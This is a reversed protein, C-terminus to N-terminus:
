KKIMKFTDSGIKLYYIGSSYKQLDVSQPVETGKLLLQGNINYISYDYNKLNSDATKPIINIYDSTPNPFLSFSSDKSFQNTALSGTNILVRSTFPLLTLNSVPNNNLDVVNTYQSSINSNTNNVIMFSNDAPFNLNYFSGKSNIDFNNAVNLQRWQSLTFTQSSSWVYNVVNTGYPNCLFNNNSSSLVNYNNDTSAIQIPISNQLNAYFINDLLTNNYISPGAQWDAFAVGERCKYTTNGSINNGYSGANILIGSGVAIDEVINDKIIINHAYNDIYIANVIGGPVTGNHDGVVRKIINNRLINNYSDSGFTYLAGGDDMNLLTNEIFNKEIIIGNGGFRIGNYGCNSIKNNAIVGGANGNILWIGSSYYDGVFNPRHNGFEVGVNTITNFKINSNAMNALLMGQVSVNEIINDSINANAGSVFFSNCNNNFRCNLIQNNNSAGKLLIAADAYHEFQLNRIINDSRNDNGAIGLLETAAEINLTNPNIVSMLYLTQTPADYFWEGATDLLELKNDFYFNANTGAANIANAWSVLNGNQATIVQRNLRWDYERLCLNAGVFNRGSTGINSNTISTSTSGSINWTGVNPTRALVQKVSNIYLFYTRQSVTAKWINGNHVAWNAVPRSGKIIPMSGTGYSDFTIGNNNYASFAISGRFTDGKRFFVRDGNTFNGWTGSTGGLEISLKQLTKWPTAVSTGNNADSGNEALYYDTAFTSLVSFLILVASTIKKM